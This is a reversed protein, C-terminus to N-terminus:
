IKKVMGSTFRYLEKFGLSTAVDLFVRDSEQVGINSIFFGQNLLSETGAAICSRVAEDSSKVFSVYRSLEWLYTDVQVFFAYACLDNTLPDYAAYIKYNGLDDGYEKNAQNIIYTLKPDLELLFNLAALHELSSEVILHPSRVSEVKSSPSAVFSTYTSESIFTLYKKAYDLYETSLFICHLQKTTAIRNLLIPIANKSKVKILCVLLDPNIESIIMLNDLSRSFYVTPRTAATRRPDLEDLLAKNQFYYAQLHHIVYSGDTAIQSLKAALRTRVEQPITRNFIKSGLSSKVRAIRGRVTSPKENTVAAIEAYSLNDIHHLLFPKINEGPFGLIIDYIDSMELKHLIADESSETILYTDLLEYEEQNISHKRQPLATRYYDQIQSYVIKHIWPKFKSPDRLQDIRTIVKILIEQVLDDVDTHAPVKYKVLQRLIGYYRRILEECAPEDNTEQIQRILQIDSLTDM